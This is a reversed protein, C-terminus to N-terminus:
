GSITDLVAFVIMFALFGIIGVLAFVGLGSIGGTRRMIQFYFWGAAGIGVVLATIGNSM